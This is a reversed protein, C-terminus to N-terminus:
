RIFDVLTQQIVKAGISLGASHISEAITMDSIAKAYDTDENLSMQKTMIIEQGSLRNAMMDIRNQKAGAEARELLVEDVAGQINTLFSGIEDGSKTSDKLTNSLNLLTKDISDFLATGNTSNVPMYIGDFVEVRREATAGALTNISSAGDNFLPKSTSTGSFLYKGAVQANALDRIQQRIQEIEVQMKERDDPTNTDNAAQTVLEQVRTLADGVEGLTSDTTDVWTQAENVNRMFQEVKNLNTRYGMGKIAVVPDDSARSIKSGSNIQEQLKGM